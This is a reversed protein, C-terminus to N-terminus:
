FKGKLYNQIFNSSVIPFGEVNDSIAICSRMKHLNLEISYVHSKVMSQDTILNFPFRLLKKLDSLNKEGEEISNFYLKSKLESQLNLIDIM